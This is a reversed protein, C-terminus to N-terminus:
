SRCLTSRLAEPADVADPLEVSDIFLTTEVGECVSNTKGGEGVEEDENVARVGDVIVSVIFGAAGTGNGLMDVGLTDVKRELSVLLRLDNM